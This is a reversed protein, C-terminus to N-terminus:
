GGPGGFPDTMSWRPSFPELLAGPALFMRTPAEATLSSGVLPLGITYGKMKVLQHRKQTIEVQTHAQLLLKLSGFKRFYQSIKVSHESSVDCEANRFSSHLLFLTNVM